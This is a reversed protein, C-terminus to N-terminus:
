DRLYGFKTAIDRIKAKWNSIFEEYKEKYDKCYYGYRINEMIKIKENIADIIPSEIKLFPLVDFYIPLIVEDITTIIPITGLYKDLTTQIPDRPKYYITEFKSKESFMIVNEEDIQNTVRMTKALMREVKYNQIGEALEYYFNDPDRVFYYNYYEDEEFCCLEYNIETKDFLDSLSDNHYGKTKIAKRFDNVLEEIQDHKMNISNDGDDDQGIYHKCLELAIIECHDHRDTDLEFVSQGCYPCSLTETIISSLKDTDFLEYNELTPNEILAEEVFEWAIRVRLDRSVHRGEPYKYTNTYEAEMGLSHQHEEIHHDSHQNIAIEHCIANKKYDSVRESFNELNLNGNDDLTKLMRLLYISHEKYLPLMTKKCRDNLRNRYKTEDKDEFFEKFPLPYTNVLRQLAKLSFREMLKTLKHLLDSKYEFEICKQYMLVKPKIKTRDYSTQRFFFVVQEKKSFIMYIGMFEGCSLYDDIYQSLSKILENKDKKIIPKINQDESRKHVYPKLDEAHLQKCYYKFGFVNELLKLGYKFEKETMTTIAM